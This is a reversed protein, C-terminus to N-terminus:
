SRAYYTYLRLYSQAGTDNVLRVRFYRPGKVAVHFEHVGSAVEFGNVPFVTWNTGDNSFDFYLTGTNDTQLSVMVDPQNNLTGTGTYTAGSALPTTSTNNSDAHLPNNSNGLANYTM